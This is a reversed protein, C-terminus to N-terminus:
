SSNVLCRLSDRPELYLTIFLNPCTGVRDLKLALWPLCVIFLYDIVKTPYLQSYFQILILSVSLPQLLPCVGIQNLVQSYTFICRSPPFMPSTSVCMSFIVICRPTQRSSVHHSGWHPAVQEAQLPGLFPSPTVWSQIMGMETAQSECWCLDCGVSQINMAKRENGSGHVLEPRWKGQIVATFKTKWRM